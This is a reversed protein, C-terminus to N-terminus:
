EQRRDMISDWVMTGNPHKKGVIEQLNAIRLVQNERWRMEDWLNGFGTTRHSGHTPETM